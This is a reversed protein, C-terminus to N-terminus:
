MALIVNDLICRDNLYGVNHGFIFDDKYYLLKRIIWVYTRENFCAFNIM